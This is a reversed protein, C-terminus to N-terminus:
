NRVCSHWEKKMLFAHLGLLMTALIKCSPFTRATGVQITKDSNLLRAGAIGTSSAKELYKTMKDLASDLIETDDNLFMIYEGRTLKVAQNNAAAFGRNKPNRILKVNKFEKAVMDASGDSSANDVVFIEFPIKTQDYISQLCRRLLDRVNWSVIIISLTPRNKSM